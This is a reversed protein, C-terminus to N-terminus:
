AVVRNHDVRAQPRNVDVRVVAGSRRESGVAGRTQPLPTTEWPQLFEDDAAIRIKDRRECWECQKRAMRLAVKKKNIQPVQRPSPAFSETLSDFVGSYQELENGSDCRAGSSTRIESDKKKVRNRLNAPCPYIDDGVFSFFGDFLFVADFFCYKTHSCPFVAFYDQFEGQRLIDTMM